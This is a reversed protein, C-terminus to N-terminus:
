FRGCGLCVSFPTALELGKKLSFFHYVNGDVRILNLGGASRFFQKLTALEPSEETHVM